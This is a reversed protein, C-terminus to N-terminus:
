KEITSAIKSVTGRTRKAPLIKPSNSHTNANENQKESDSSSTDGEDESEYVDSESSELDTSEDEVYDEDSSEDSYNVLSSGVILEDELKRKKSEIVAM